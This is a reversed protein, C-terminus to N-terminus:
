MFEEAQARKRKKEKITPAASEPPAIFAEEREERRQEAKEAQREAKRKKEIAERERPKLFYEGSAMQLDLKSPQQAPPFPTYVKKKLPPPASPAEGESEANGSHATAKAELKANKRATKESTKLHRKQFEAM